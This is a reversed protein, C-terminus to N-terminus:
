LGFSKKFEPAYHRTIIVKEGNDLYAEFKGNLLAKVSSLRNLNLICSKNIRIFGAKNLEEEIEYLRFEMEYVEDSLYIFTKNDISEIYYVDSLMISYSINDKKGIVTSSYLKIQDVLKGLSNTMKHYKVVIEEEEYKPSQDMTLKIKSIKIM